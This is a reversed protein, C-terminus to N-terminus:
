TVGDVIQRSETLRKAALHVQWSWLAFTGQVATVALIMMLQRISGGSGYLVLVVVDFMVLAAATIFLVFPRKLIAAGAQVVLPVAVVAVFLHFLGSADRLMQANDSGIARDLEDGAENAINFLVTFLVLPIAKLVSMVVPAFRLAPLFEYVDVAPTQESTPRVKAAAPDKKVIDYAGYSQALPDDDPAYLDYGGATMAPAQPSTSVAEGVWQKGDWYRQTGAADGTANYWGPAVM